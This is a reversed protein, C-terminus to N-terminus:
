RTRAYRLTDTIAVGGGGSRRRVEAVRPARTGQLPIEYRGELRRELNIPVPPVSTGPQLNARERARQEIERALRALEAPDMTQTWHVIALAEPAQADLRVVTLEDVARLPTGGVPSPLEVDRRTPRSSDLPASFPLFYPAVDDLVLSEVREKGGLSERLLVAVRDRTGADPITALLAATAADLRQRVQEYNEISRVRGSEDLRLRLTIGDFLSADPPPPLNAPELVRTPGFTWDLLTGAPGTEVVRVEVPTEARGRFVVSGGEVRDRSKTVLLAFADGAKFGPSITFPQAFAGSASFLLALGVVLAVRVARRARRTTSEPTM